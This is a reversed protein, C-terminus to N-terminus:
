RRKRGALAVGFIGLGLLTLITPEPVSATILDNGCSMTYHAGFNNIVGFAGLNNLVVENHYDGALGYVDYNYTNYGLVGIGLVNGGNVEFPNAFSHDWGADVNVVNTASVEYVTYANANFDLDIALDFSGDDALDIFIDGSVVQNRPDGAGFQNAYYGNAFDYGGVLSLTKSSADWLFAEVEEGQNFSGADIEQDESKDWGTHLDNTTVNVFAAYTNGVALTAIAVALLLMKNM